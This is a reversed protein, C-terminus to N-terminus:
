FFRMYIAKFRVLLLDASGVVIRCCTTLLNAFLRGGNQATIRSTGMEDSSLSSVRPVAM